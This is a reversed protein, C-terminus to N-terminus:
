GGVQRIWDSMNYYNTVRTIRGGSIEFFAGVLLHYKQGAAEPLGDDTSLYEGRIYFEASARDGSESVM